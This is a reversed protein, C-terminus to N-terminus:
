LPRIVQLMESMWDIFIRVRLSLQRRHPYLAIVPMPDARWQRLVERLEGTQLHHQVDFAPIQILGMGALACAIYNDAQNVTVHSKMAITQLEEGIRYKWLAVRGTTSSAYNVVCHGALDDPSLPMGHEALYAPSACNIIEFKGLPRAILSSSESVGVRVVCDVGEQVLDIARDTAGIILELNPYRRSFDPLAQTILRTAIRSPVDIKLRGSVKSVDGHFLTEIEKVEVLLQRARELLTVGDPTPDVRLTTRNLLRVGLERELQGVVASVTSHPLSMAEAARSFSGTDVVRVFVDLAKIRDM